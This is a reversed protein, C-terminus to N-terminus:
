RVQYLIEELIFALGRFGVEADIKPTRLTLKGHLAPPVGGGSVLLRNESVPLTNM